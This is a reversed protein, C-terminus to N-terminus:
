GRGGGCLPPLYERDQSRGNEDRRIPLRRRAGPQAGGDKPLRSPHTGSSRGAERRRALGAHLQRDPARQPPLRPPHDPGTDKQLKETLVKQAELVTRLEPILPFQRGEANKTTNPELRLWGATFDVQAWTLPLLENKIRWGTLYAVDVLPQLPAALHHRVALYQDREFFGKRANALRLLSIRPSKLVLGDREGLSFMRRLGALEQNITANAAGAQRRQTAYATIRDSTITAAKQNAFTLTLNNLAYEVPGQLAPPQPALYGM